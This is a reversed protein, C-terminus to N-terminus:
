RMIYKQGSPSSQYEEYKDTNLTHAVDKDTQSTCYIKDRFLLTSGQTLEVFYLNGETLINSTIDIEIYNGVIDSTLNTLTQTKRTGDETIVLQLNSAEVYQRPVITITQETTIPQLVIMSLYDNATPKTKFSFGGAIASPKWDIILFVFRTRIILKYWCYHHYYGFWSGM